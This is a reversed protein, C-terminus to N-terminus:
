AGPIHIAAAPTLSGFVVRQLVSGILAFLIIAVILTVVFYGAQKEKPPDKVNSLGFWLLVLSYIAALLSLPSLSPIIMFIGGLWAATYSYITIKLSDLLNKAAGFSPALADIILALIYVAALQLGYQLVAWLIGRGVPFRVTVGMFSTGILSYGIFGAVAPIAALIVAYGTFLGAVSAQENRIVKWESTPQLLIAKVRAVISM